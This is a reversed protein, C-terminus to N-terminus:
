TASVHFWVIRLIVGAPTTLWSAALLLLLVAAILTPVGWGVVVERLFWQWAGRLRGSM